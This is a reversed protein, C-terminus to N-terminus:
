VPAGVTIVADDILDELEALEDSDIRLHV